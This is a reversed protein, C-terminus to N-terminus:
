RSASLARVAAKRRPSAKSKLTMTPSRLRAGGRRDLRGPKQVLGDPLLVKGIDHLIAGIGLCLLERDLIGLSVALNVSLVAVNLSHQFTYEDFSKLRALSLYADRNRFVSAIIESVACDAAEADM